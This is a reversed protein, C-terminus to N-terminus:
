QRGKRTIDKAMNFWYDPKDQEARLAKLKEGEEILEKLIDLM